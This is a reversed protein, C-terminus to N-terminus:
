LPAPWNPVGRAEVLWAAHPRTLDYGLSAGRQIWAQEDAIESALMEDLFTARMREEAVGVANQKAWELAAASAGQSAAIEEVASIDQGAASRLLLCYGRPSEGAVIATVVAERYPLSDASSGTTTSLRLCGVAQNLKVASQTAAWSRLTMINPLANLI